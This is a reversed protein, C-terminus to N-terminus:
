DAPGSGSAAPDSHADGYPGARWCGVDGGGIRELFRHEIGFREDEVAGRGADIQLVQQLFHPHIVLDLLFGRSVVIRRRNHLMDELPLSTFDAERRDRLDQQVAVAAQPQHTRQGGVHLVVGAIGGADHGACGRAGGCLFEDAVEPRRRGLLYEGRRADFLEARSYSAPFSWCTSATRATSLTSWDGRMSM